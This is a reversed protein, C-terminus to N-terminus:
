CECRQKHHEADDNHIIPMRCDRCQHLMSEELKPNVAERQDFVFCDGKWHEGGCEKFYNLIGGDLQYVEDFGENLMYPSAKECRIGGTCFIVVPKGELKSRLEKVRAPFDRFSKINPDIANEFTGFAVEFDNRTDLIAFDKGEEYWRKLEEPSISPGTYEGPSIGEQGFTVAESKVKILLKKFPQYNTYSEKVDAEFAPIFDKLIRLFDAIVSPEAAVMLNVGEPALLLTGKIPMDRLISLMQAKMESLDELPTFCYAAINLIQNNM